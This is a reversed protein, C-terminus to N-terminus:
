KSNDVQVHLKFDPNLKDKYINKIAGRIDALSKLNSSLKHLKKNFVVKVNM